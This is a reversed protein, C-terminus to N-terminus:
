QAMKEIYAKLDDVQADSMREAPFLPMYAKHGSEPHTGHRVIEFLWWYNREFKRNLYKFNTKSDDFVVESVGMFTHCSQCSREYVLKGTEPNGKPTTEWNRDYPPEIFTAPSKLSYREKIRKIIGAHQAPDNKANNMAQLDAESFGLDAFSYGISYYYALISEIEWTELPRGQSCETACLQIAERIDRNAPLVLDGYKKYYDGNYWSERNIIGYFTTGQLFPIQHADTYKLRAEPDSVSLVPDEIRTNHCNTCMYYRSIYETKKGRNDTTRGHHVMEYGRKIMEPSLHSLNWAPLPEGIEHLAEFVKTDLTWTNLTNNRFSNFIGLSGILLVILALINIKPM